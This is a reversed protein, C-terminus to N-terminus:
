ARITGLADKVVKELGYLDVGLYLELEGEKAERWKPYYRDLSSIARNGLHPRVQGYYAGSKWELLEIYAANEVEGGCALMQEVLSFVATLREDRVKSRTSAALRHTYSDLM